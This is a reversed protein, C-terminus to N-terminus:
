PAKPAFSVHGSSVQSRTSKVQMFVIRHLKLKIPRPSGDRDAIGTKLFETAVGRAQLDRERVHVADGDDVRARAQSIKAFVKAGDPVLLFLEHDRERVKVPVVDLAKREKGRGIIGRLFDREQGEAPVLGHGIQPLNELDLHLRFIERQLQIVHTGFEFEQLDSIGAAVEGDVALHRSNNGRLPVVMGASRITEPDLSVPLHEDNAGIDLMALLDIGPEHLQRAARIQQDMVRLVGGLFQLFPASTSVAAEILRHLNGFHSAHLAQGKGMMVGLVVVIKEVADLFQTLFAEGVGHKGAFSHFDRDLLGSAGDKM